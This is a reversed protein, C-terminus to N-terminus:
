RCGAGGTVRPGRAGQPVRFVPATGDSAVPILGVGVHSGVSDPELSAAVVASGPHALPVYSWGAAPTITRAELTVTVGEELNSAERTARTIPKTRTVKFAEVSVPGGAMVNCVPLGKIRLADVASGTGPALLYGRPRARTATVRLSRADQITVDVPKPAATQPDLMALTAALTGLEHRVALPSRDGAMARRAEVVTRRVRGPDRATQELVAAAALYHTAVRRQFSQREIGVGRTEVLFSVAGALGYYNRSIGPAVGGTAVTREVGGGVRSAAAPGTLYVYSSLGREALRREMVPQFHAQAEATVSRPVGPHTAYLLTADWPALGGLRTLWSGAVGYEHADVVVDAPLEAMRAQIARSEPLTALLHDRNLDFDQATRRTFAAAGDPNARPVVVVTVRRLLPRLEGDALASALALMAEGGAPENGHQQGILWVVPRRLRKVRALDTHGEATFVLYPIDRGQSSAGLSGLLFRPARRKLGALHALMEEQSTFTTRGPAVGPSDLRIPVDGYRALVAASQQYPASSGEPPPTQAGAASALLQLSALGAAVGWSRKM